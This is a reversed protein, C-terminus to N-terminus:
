WNQVIWVVGSITFIALLVGFILNYRFRVAKALIKPTTKAKAANVEIARQFFSV